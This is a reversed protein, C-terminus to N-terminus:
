LRRYRKAGKRACFIGGIGLAMTLSGLLLFQNTGRGGTVPPDIPKNNLFKYGTVTVGDPAYVQEVAPPNAVGQIVAWEILSTKSPDIRVDWQGKPLTYGDPAKTEILRYAGETLDGFDVLGGADSSVTKVLQWCDGPHEADLLGEQDLGTHTHTGEQEPCTLRFIKFEAGELPSAIIKEM